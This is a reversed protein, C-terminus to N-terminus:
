LSVGDLLKAVSASIIRKDKEHQFRFSARTGKILSGRKCNFCLVTSGIETSNTSLILDFPTDWQVCQGKRRM